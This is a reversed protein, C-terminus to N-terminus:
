MLSLLAALEFDGLHMEDGLLYTPVEIGLCRLKKRAETTPVAALM